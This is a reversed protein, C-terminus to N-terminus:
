EEEQEEEGLMEPLDAEVARLVDKVVKMLQKDRKTAPTYLKMLPKLKVVVAKLVKKYEDPFEVYNERWIAWSGCLVSTLMLIAERVRAQPVSAVEEGQRKVQKKEEPPVSEYVERFMNVPINMLDALWAFFESVYGVVYIPTSFLFFAKQNIV